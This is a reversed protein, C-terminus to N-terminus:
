PNRRRPSGCVVDQEANAQWTGVAKLLSTVVARGLAVPVANAVQKIGNHHTGSFKWSDPFGHIRAYERVSMERHFEPHIYSKTSDDLGATLSRCLGDWPARYRYSQRVAVGRPVTKIHEITQLRHTRGTHNSFGTQDEPGVDPLGRLAERVTLCPRLDIGPLLRQDGSPDFHTATPFRPAMHSGRIGLVFLRERLTPAGFDSARIVRWAVEYGSASLDRLLEDFLQRSSRLLNPVNEFLFGTPELERVLRSFEFVLPAKPGSAGRKRGFTTFDDCPPGGMVVDIRGSAIACLDAGTLARADACKVAHRVHPFHKTVNVGTTSLFVPNSDNSVLESVLGTQCAALDLGGAGAFLSVIRLGGGNSTADSMTEVSETPRAAVKPEMNVASRASSYSSQDALRLVAM